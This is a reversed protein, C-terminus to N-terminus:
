DWDSPDVRWFPFGFKGSGVGAAFVVHDVRGLSRSVGDAAGRIAGYDTVDAVIGVPRGLGSGGLRQAIAPVDPDRDVIAVDLGEALFGSAIALGLGRAGGVVVAVQGALELDM